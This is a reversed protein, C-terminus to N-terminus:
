STGHSVGGKPLLRDYHKTVGDFGKGDQRDIGPYPAGRVDDPLM